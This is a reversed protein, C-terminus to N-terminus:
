SLFIIPAGVKLHFHGLATLGDMGPLGIDLLILDVPDDHIMTLGDKASVVMKVQYDAQQLHFSPSSWFLADDDVLLIKRPM